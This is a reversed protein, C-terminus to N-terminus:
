EELRLALVPCNAVAQRAAKEKGPPVEATGGIDVYGDDDLPFLEYDISACIGNAECRENDAHIKM